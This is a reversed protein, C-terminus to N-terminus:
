RVCMQHFHKFESQEIVEAAQKRGEAPQVPSKPSWLISASSCNQGTLWGGRLRQPPWSGRRCTLLDACELSSSRSRWLLHCSIGSPECGNFIGVVCIHRTHSRQETPTNKQSWMRIHTHTHASVTPSSRSMRGCSSACPISSHRNRQRLFWWRPWSTNETWLYSFSQVAPPDSPFKASCAPSLGTSWGVM